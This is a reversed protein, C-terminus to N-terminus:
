VAGKANELPLKITILTGTLAETAESTYGLAGRPTISVMARGGYLLELRERLNTLGNGTNPNAAFGVGTDEVSLELWANNKRAKIRVEGGQKKPELGHKISNEVLPQLLMSPLPEGRLNEPLDVFYALREGMRMQMLQLYSQVLNVEHGLTSQGEKMQPLLARLWQSLAQSMALARTPNVEILRELAALTNFLFHPEVQAQMRLLKAEIIQRQLNQAEASQTAVQARVTAAQERLRSGGIIKLTVTLAILLWALTKFPSPASRFDQVESEVKIVPPESSSVQALIEEIAKSLKAELESEEEETKGAADAITETLQRAAEKAAAKAQDADTEVKTEVKAELKLEAPKPSAEAKPASDTAPKPKSVTVEAGGVKIKVERSGDPKVPRDVKITQSVKQKPPRDPFIADDLITGVIVGIISILFVRWWSWRALVDAVDGLFHFTDSFFQRFRNPARTIQLHHTGSTSGPESNQSPPLSNPSTM